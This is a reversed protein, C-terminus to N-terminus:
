GEFHAKMPNFYHKTWGEEYQQGHPPLNEHTIKILTGRPAELFEITVISDEESDKFEMTRWRQVIKNPRSIETNTGSIYGDWATFQAGVHASAEAEAGTMASHGETSLWADFLTELNVSIISEVTFKM